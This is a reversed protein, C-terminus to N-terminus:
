IVVGFDPGDLNEQDAVGADDCEGVLRGLVAAEGLFGDFCNSPKKAGTKGNFISFPELYLCWGPGIQNVVARGSFSMHNLATSYLSAVARPMARGPAICRCDIGM